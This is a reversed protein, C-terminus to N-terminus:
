SCVFKMKKRTPIKNILGVNKGLTPIQNTLGASKIMRTLALNMLGVKFDWLLM